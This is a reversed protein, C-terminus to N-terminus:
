VFYLESLHFSAVFTLHFPKSNSRWPPQHVFMTEGGDSSSEESMYDLSLATFREREEGSHTVKSRREYLQLYVIAHHNYLYMTPYATYKICVRQKRSRVKRHKNQHSVRQQQSPDTAERWCRRRSEFYRQIAGSNFLNTTFM